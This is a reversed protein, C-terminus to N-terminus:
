FPEVGIEALGDAFEEIARGNRLAAVQDLLRERKADGTMVAREVYQRLYQRILDLAGPTLPDGNIYTEVADALRGTQETMWYHPPSDVPFPYPYDPNPQYILEGIQESDQSM